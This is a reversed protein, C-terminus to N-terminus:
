WYAPRKGDILYEITTPIDGPIVVKLLNGLVDYDYTTTKNSGTHVKSELEGNKSYSFTYDAYSKLRDQEDYDGSEVIVDDVKKRIRNGNDDYDYDVTIGGKIVKDLRGVDDYQYEVNATVGLITEDKSKIRGLKDRTYTVDYISTADYDASNTWLEGFSTYTRDTVLKGLSTGNILGGKQVEHGIILDGANTLLNDKDYFYDFCDSTNVCQQKVLLHNNFKQSVSGEVVGTWTQSNVLTGLYGYSLVGEDPATISNVQGYSDYGYTYTGRPIVMNDLRSTGAVFNFSLEQADPRTVKTLKRDKDYKYITAPSPVGDVVPPTYDKAKNVSNYDFYHKPQGPPQLWELNGNADFKQNLISGDPYTTKNLRGLDDYGFATTRNEADEISTVKGKGAADYHYTTVRDGSTITKVRGRSDYQYNVESLETVQSSQM